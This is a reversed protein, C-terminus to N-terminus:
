VSFFYFSLSSSFCLIVRNFLSDSEAKRWWCSNEEENKEREMFNLL